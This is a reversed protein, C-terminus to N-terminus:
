RHPKTAHWFGLSKGDILKNVDLWARKRRRQRGQGAMSMMKRHESLHDLGANSAGGWGSGGELWDSSTMPNQSLSPDFPMNNYTGRKSFDVPYNQTPAHPLSTNHGFLADHCPFAHHSPAPAAWLSSPTSVSKNSLNPSNGTEELAGQRMTDYRQFLSFSEHEEEEMECEVFTSKAHLQCSFREQLYGEVDHVGFWVGEVGLLNVGELDKQRGDETSTLRVLRNEPPGIQQLTWSNRSPSLVVWPM